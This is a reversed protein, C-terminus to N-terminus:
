HSFPNQTKDVSFGDSTEKEASIAKKGKNLRKNHNICCAAIEKIAQKKDVPTLSFSRAYPEYSTPANIKLTTSVRIFYVKNTNFILSLPKLESYNKDNQFEFIHEGPTLTLRSNVGNKAYLKFEGDITLGPSYIANSMVSPRYIYVVTQGARAAQPSFTTVDKTTSCAALFFGCLLFFLTATFKNLVSNTALPMM